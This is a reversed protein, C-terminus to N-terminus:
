RILTPLHTEGLKAAFEALTRFFGQPALSFGFLKGLQGSFISLAIGNLFGTLIPRSLFNVIGGLRAIGGAICLL